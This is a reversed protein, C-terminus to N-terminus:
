RRGITDGTRGDVYIWTVNGDRVFVLKYVGAESDLDVGKYEWNPLQAQVRKVIRDVPLLKGAKRAEFAMAQDGRRQEAADAAPALALLLVPLAFMKMRDTMTAPRQVAQSHHACTLALNGRRRLTGLAARTM